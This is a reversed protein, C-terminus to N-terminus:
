ESGRAPLPRDLYGKLNKRDAEHEVARTFKVSKLKKECTRLVLKTAPHLHDTCDRQLDDLLTIVEEITEDPTQM